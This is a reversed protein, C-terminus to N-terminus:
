LIKIQIVLFHKLDLYYILINAVLFFKKQILKIYAVM